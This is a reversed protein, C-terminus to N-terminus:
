HIKCTRRLWMLFTKSTKKFFSPVPPYFISTIKKEPTGSEECSGERGVPFHVGDIVGRSLRQRWIGGSLTEILKGMLFGHFNKLSGARLGPGKFRNRYLERARM